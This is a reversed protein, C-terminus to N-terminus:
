FNWWFNHLGRSIHWQSGDFALDQFNGGGSLQSQGVQLWGRGGVVDVAARSGTTGSLTILLCGLILFTKRIRIMLELELNRSRLCHSILRLQVDIFAKGPYM